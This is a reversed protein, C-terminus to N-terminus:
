RRRRFFAIVPRTQNDNPRNYRDNDPRFDSPKVSDAIKYDKNWAPGFAKEIRASRGTDVWDKLNQIVSVVRDRGDYQDGRVVTWADGIKRMALTAVHNPGGHRQAGGAELLALREQRNRPYNGIYLLEDGTVRRMIEKQGGGGRRIRDHDGAGGYRAGRDMVSLTRDLRHAVPSPQSNDQSASQISWGAGDRRQHIGLQGRTFEYKNDKRDVYRGTLSVDALVKAMDDPHKGLGCPVYGSQLWCSGWGSQNVTEPEWAHYMFTEALMARTKKDDIAGPNDTSVLRTLNDYTAAIKADMAEQAKERDAGTVVALDVSDSLRKEFGSMMTELRELKAEDPNHLRMEDIFNFHAEEVTASAFGDGSRRFNEAVLSERERAKSDKYSYDGFENTQLDSRVEVSKGNPRLREYTNSLQGDGDPAAPNRKRTWEDVREGSPLKTVDSIKTLDGTTADYSFDRHSGDPRVVSLLRGAEDHTMSTFKLNGSADLPENKSPVISKSDSNWVKKEADYSFTLKEGSPKTEVIKVAQGGALEREIKTGDPRVIEKINKKDDTIVLTGDDSKKEVTKEGNIPVKTVSGDAKLKPNDNAKFSLTGDSESYTIEGNWVGKSVRGKAQTISYNFKESTGIRTYTHNEGLEKKHLTMSAVQPASGDAGDTYTLARSDGNPYTITAIRGKDDLTFNDNQGSEKLERLTPPRTPAAEPPAPGDAPKSESVADKSPYCIGEPTCYGADNNKESKPNKESEPQSFLEVWPIMKEAKPALDLNSENLKKVESPQTLAHRVSELGGVTDKAPSATEAVEKNVEASNESKTEAATENAKVFSLQQSKQYADVFDGLSVEPEYPNQVFGSDAANAPNSTPPAM